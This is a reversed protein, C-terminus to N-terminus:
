TGFCYFSLASHLIIDSQKPNVSELNECVIPELVNPSMVLNWKGVANRAIGVSQGEALNLVRRRRTARPEPPDVPPAPDTEPRSGADNAGDLETSPQGDAANQPPNVLPELALSGARLDLFSM